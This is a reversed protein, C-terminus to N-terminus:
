EVYIALAKGKPHVVELQQLGDVYRLETVQWREGKSTKRAHYSGGVIALIINLAGGVVVM